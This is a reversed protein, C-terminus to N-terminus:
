SQGPRGGHQVLARLVLRGWLAAVIGALPFFICHYAYLSYVWPEGYAMSFYIDWAAGAALGLALTAALGPVSERALPCPAGHQLLAPGVPAPRQSGIRGALLMLLVGALSVWHLQWILRNSYTLEARFPGPRAIRVGQFAHDARFVQEPEGNVVANWHEDFNNSVLLVGPRQAQGEFVIRDPSYSIVRVVGAPGSAQGPAPLSLDPPADGAALFATDALAAGSAGGLAELVQQREALTVASGALWGRPLVDRVEYVWLPMTTFREVPTGRLLPVPTRNPSSDRLDAYAEIGEIPKFSVLYRINFLRLLEPNWNSAQYPPLMSDGLQGVYLLHLNQWNTAFHDRNQPAAIQPAVMKGFLQKYYKNVLVGRHEASELGYGLPLAAPLGVCGVRFPSTRNKEALQELSVHNGFFKGYMAYPLSLRQISFAVMAAAALALALGSAALRSRTRADHGCLRVLSLGAALFAVNVLVEEGSAENVAYLAALAASAAALAWWCKRGGRLLADLALALALAYGLPVLFDANSLDMKALFSHQLWDSFRGLFLTSILAPPIIFALALATFRKRLMAPLGLSVLLMAPNILSQGLFRLFHEAADWFNIYVAPTYDRQAYPIYGLLSAMAPVFVLVYGTWLAFVGAIHARTRVRPGLGLVLGLHAVSFCPLTIVVFSLGYFLLMGALCLARRRLPLTANFLDLSWVFFMPFVYEFVRGVVLYQASFMFVCAGLAGALVSTELRERLLRFTGWGAATILLLRLAANILWIPLFQSLLNIFGYASLQDAFAPSGGAYLPNWSHLGYELLERGRAFQHLYTGDFTDHVRVLSLPGLITTDLCFALALLLFLWPSLGPLLTTGAPANHTDSIHM